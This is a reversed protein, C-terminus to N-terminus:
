WLYHQCYSIICIINNEPFGIYVQKISAIIMGFLILNVRDKHNIYIKTFMKIFIFSGVIVSTIFVGLYKLEFDKIAIIFESYQGFMILVNTLSIGPLILAISSLLGVVVTFPLNNSSINISKSVLEFLLMILLGVFIYTPKNKNTLKNKTLFVISSGIMIGIIFFSFEFAFNESLYSIPSSLAFVGTVGGIAYPILIIISNVPKKTLNNLAILIEDFIGLLIATTGGSMGPIIVSTGIFFGYILNKLFNYIAFMKISM